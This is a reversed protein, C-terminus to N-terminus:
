ALQEINNVNPPVQKKPCPSLVSKIMEAPFKGENYIKNARRTITSIGFEGLADLMEVTLGGPGAAKGKTM